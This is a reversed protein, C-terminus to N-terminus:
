GVRRTESADDILAELEREVDETAILTARGARVAELRRRAEALWAADVEAEPRGDGISDVLIAALEAREDEPLEMAADLVTQTSTTLVV